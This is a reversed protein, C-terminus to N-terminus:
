WWFCPDWAPHWSGFRVGNTDPDGNNDDPVEWSRHLEDPCLTNPVVEKGEFVGPIPSASGDREALRVQFNAITSFPADLNRRVWADSPIVATLGSDSPKSFVYAYTQVSIRGKQHVGFELDRTGGPLQAWGESTWGPLKATTDANTKASAAAAGVFLLVKAPRHLYLRALDDGARVGSSFFLDLGHYFTSTPDSVPHYNAESLRPLYVIREFMAPRPLEAFSRVLPPVWSTSYAPHQDCSLALHQGHAVTALLLPLCFAIFRMTLSSPQVPSSM